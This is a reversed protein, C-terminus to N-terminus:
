NSVPCKIQFNIYKAKTKTWNQRHCSGYSFSIVFEFMLIKNANVFYLQFISAMIIDEILIDINLNKLKDAM